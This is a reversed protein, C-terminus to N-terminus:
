FEYEMLLRYNNDPAKYGLGFISGVEWHVKKGQGLRIDGMLVPGLAQGSESSYFELGPEFFSGYRYKAQLALLSEIENNIGQGWEYAVTVNATGVWQGWQKAMLLGASAEWANIHQQKELEFLVGWDVAYEGQETLQWKAELEIADLTLHNNDDKAIFYAEVFVRDSVSQGLGFRYREEGDASTMRVEMERELPQVYPHYVKDVTLGDAHVLAPLLVTALLLQRM